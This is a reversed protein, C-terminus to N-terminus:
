AKLDSLIERAANAGPAGTLFGGPHAGAGCLYLGAIPARYRSFGLSPRLVFLQDLGPDGHLPHGGLIGYDVEIDEPTLVQRALVLSSIGPAYAELTRLVLEFLEDRRTAWSGVALRRPTYQVCASLVHRGEPALSPDSLTPITLELHPARSLGGHKADDFARELAAVSEGVHIRGRLLQAGAAGAARFVPLAALALNVKSAMGEQRYHRLAERDQPDLQAPEVLKLFTTKPDAGSAIARAEIEEGSRLAVGRARGDAVLIAAVEAGVRLEAGHRRAAGALAEALAGPGGRALLTSGAASGGDAGAQFLLHATTGASWPGAFSGRIGRAAILAQLPESSFWEAAFDAVPMPGFRLLDQALGRGLGRFGLGLRLLAFLDRAGPADVDPPPQDLLRAMLRGIKSLAAAFAPYRLADRPSFSRIAAASQATDGYLALGRGDPLPAFVCPDPAITEIRVGLERQVRPRLPFTTHALAPAKFGPHFEETVACGGLRPRRELAVVKLGRRALLGACVLANHGGGVIAVDYRGSV